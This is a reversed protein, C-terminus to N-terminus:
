ESIVQTGTNERRVQKDSPEQSIGAAWSFTLDQECINRRGLEPTNKEFWM